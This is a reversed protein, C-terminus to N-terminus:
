GRLEDMAELFDRKRDPGALGQRNPPFYIATVNRRTSLKPVHKLAEGMQPDTFEGNQQWLLLGDRATHGVYAVVLSGRDPAPTAVVAQVIGSDIIAPSVQLGERRLAASASGGAVPYLKVRFGHQRLAQMVDDPSNM